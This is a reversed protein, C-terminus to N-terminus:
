YFKSFTFSLRYIRNGHGFGMEYIPFCDFCFGCLGSHRDMTPLLLRCTETRIYVNDSLVYSIDSYNVDFSPYFFFWCVCVRVCM